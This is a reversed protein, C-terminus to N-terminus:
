LLSFFFGTTCTDSIAGFEWWKYHLEKIEYCQYGKKKKLYLFLKSIYEDNQCLLLLLLSLVAWFGLTLTKNTCFKLPFIRDCYKENTQL